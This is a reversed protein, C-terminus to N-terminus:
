GPSRTTDHDCALRDFEGASVLRGDLWIRDPRLDGPRFRASAGFAVYPLRAETTPDTSASTGPSAPPPALLLQLEYTGTPDLPRDPLTITTRFGDPATGVTLRHVDTSDPAEANWVVTGAADLLRISRFAGPHCSPVRATITGDVQGSMGARRSMGLPHPRADIEFECGDAVLGLLLAALVGALVLPAALAIVCGVLARRTAKLLEQQSYM